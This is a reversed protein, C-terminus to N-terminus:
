IKVRKSDIYSLNETRFPLDHGGMVIGNMQEINKKSAAFLEPDYRPILERLRRKWFLRSPMADGAIILDNGSEIVAAMLPLKVAAGDNPMRMQIPYIYINHNKM